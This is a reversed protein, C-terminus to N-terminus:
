ELDSASGSTVHFRSLYALTARVNPDSSMLLYTTSLNFSSFIEFLDKLIGELPKLYFELFSQWHFTSERLLLM